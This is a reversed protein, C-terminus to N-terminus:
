SIKMRDLKGGAQPLGGLNQHSQSSYGVTCVCNDSATCNDKNPTVVIPPNYPFLALRLRAPATTLKAICTLTHPQELYKGSMKLVCKQGKLYQDSM